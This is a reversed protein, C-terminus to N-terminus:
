YALLIIFSFKYNMIKIYKEIIDYYIIIYKINETGNVYKTIIILLMKM